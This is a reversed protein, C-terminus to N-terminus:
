TARHNSHRHRQRAKIVYGASAVFVLSLARYWRYAVSSSSSCINRARRCPRSIGASTLRWKTRGRCSPTFATARTARGRGRGGSRGRLLTSVRRCRTTPISLLKKMLSADDATTRPQRFVFRECMPCIVSWKHCSRPWRSRLILLVIYLFIM